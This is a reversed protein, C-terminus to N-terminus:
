FKRQTFTHHINPPLSQHFKLTGRPSQEWLQMSLPSQGDKNDASSQSQLSVFYPAEYTRLVTARAKQEMIQNLSQM